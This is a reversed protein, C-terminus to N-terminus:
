AQDFPPILLFRIVFNLSAHHVVVKIYDSLCTPVYFNSFPVGWIAKDPVSFSCRWPVTCQLLDKTYHVEGSTIPRPSELEDHLNTCLDVRINGPMHFSRSHPYSQSSAVMGVQKMGPRSTMMPTWREGCPHWTSLSMVVDCYTVTSARKGSPTKGWTTVIFQLGERSRGRTVRGVCGEESGIIWWLECIGTKRWIPWKRRRTAGPRSWGNRPGNM